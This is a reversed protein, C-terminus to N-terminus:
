PSSGSCLDDAVGAHLGQDGEAGGSAPLSMWLPEYGFFLFDIMIVLTETIIPSCACAHVIPGRRQEKTVIGSPNLCHV